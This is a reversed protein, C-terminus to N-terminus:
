TIDECVIAKATPPMTATRSTACHGASRRSACADSASATRVRSHDNAPALQPSPRRRRDRLHGLTTRAEDRFSSSTCEPARGSAGPSRRVMLTGSATNGDFPTLTMAFRSDATFIDYGFATSGWGGVPVGAGATRTSALHLDGGPLADGFVDDRKVVVYSADADALDGHAPAGGGSCGPAMGMALAIAGTLAALRVVQM